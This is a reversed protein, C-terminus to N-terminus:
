DMSCPSATQTNGSTRLRRADASPPSCGTTTEDQFYHFTSLPRCSWDGDLLNDRFQNGWSPCEPDPKTCDSRADHDCYWDTYGATTGVRILRNDVIVNDNSYDRLRVPDGSSRLFRNARITNRDSMHAAYIAHILGGSRTNVVDIFHNNTIENDDSNVLRVCATSPELSSDFVNGIRDFVCGYIRNSGNSTAEANRNGNLSIATQYRQVRLYSFHLNTEEGDAHRLTFFTGGCDSPDACGDFVPRDEPDAALFSIRHEPMTFRWVVRQGGYTGPAISVEVDCSPPDAELLEQVRALTRLAAGEGFGDASDDGDAALHYVRPCLEGADPLGADGPPSADPTPPVGADTTAADTAGADTLTADTLAADTAAADTLAADTLAADTTAADARSGADEGSPPSPACAFCVCLVWPRVGRAYV